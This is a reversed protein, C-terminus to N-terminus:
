WLSDTLRHPEVRVGYPSFYQCVNQLDRLLLPRAQQNFRPDVAQPFDIVTLAGQWYLLNYPSLDAHICNCALFLRVDDVLGDFLRRTETKELSVNKLLPAPGDQDGVYEMLISNGSHAVPRPVHAGARHLQQLVEYEQGIWSGFNFSRGHRTKKRAARRSRADLIVRGARYEADNKFSRQEVPRYVKAALLEAPDAPGAQCCYVTAEKGSPLRYLVDTILGRDYFEELSRLEPTTAMESM